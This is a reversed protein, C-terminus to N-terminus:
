MFTNNFEFTYTREPEIIIINKICNENIGLKRVCQIINNFNYIEAVNVSDNNLKLDTYYFVLYYYAILQKILLTNDANGLISENLLICENSDLINCKICSNTATLYQNYLSNNIINYSLLKTIASLYDKEKKDCDDCNSCPCGCLIYHVNEVFSKLFQTYISVTYTDNLLLKDTIVIKYLDDKKPLTLLLVGNNIQQPLLVKWENSNCFTQTYVTIYLLNLGTKTVTFVNGNRLITYAM